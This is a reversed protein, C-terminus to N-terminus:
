LELMWLSTGASEDPDMPSSEFILISGDPSISPAGDYGTYNTLRSQSGGTLPAQYINAREVAYDSSFIIAQGDASFVADTKSGDFNTVKTKQSGDIDMIWIDWQDDVARQYLIKNGAPSWNPQRCDAERATLEIYGSTGDRRYKTIVGNEEEDLLHTEFVLWQGDPSFTPEFAVSDPRDTIQIESGAVGDASISYIEDHPERDSSFIIANTAANWCEGPLNVSSNGDKVLPKLEHTALNFTYLDSPPQNYGNRFRTFVITKGDPSFAANQLSGTLDIALKVADDNRVESFEEDNECSFGALLALVLIGMQILRQKNSQM